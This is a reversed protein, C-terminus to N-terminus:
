PREDEEGRLPLEPPFRRSALEWGQADIVGALPLRGGDHMGRLVVPLRFPLPEVSKNVTKSIDWAYLSGEVALAPPGFLGDFLSQYVEVLPALEAPLYETNLVLYRLGVARLAELAAEDVSFTGEHEGQELSMLGVLFSNQAVWTDWAAPRVRDVWMAHGNLLKKGHVWQYSLTQQGCVLPPSIPLELVVEGPLEALKTYAEPSSWVSVPATLTGGRAGVEVPLLLVLALALAGPVVPRLWPDAQEALWRFARELGLAALPALTLTLVAIHRYPWWYRRLPGGVGYLFWFPGPVGGEGGGSLSPFPGLCLLYFLLSSAVCARQAWGLQAWVGRILGLWARPDKPAGARWVDYVPGILAGLAPLVLALPLIIGGWFGPGGLVPFLLPLSSQMALPHPFSAEATGPIESWSVLFVVLPPLTTALAVPVFPVLARLRPRFAWFLGGAVACWLGAYWYSFAAAGFLLGALIGLRLVAGRPRWPGDSPAAELLAHWAVLFFGIWYIPLQAFRGGALEEAVYPSFAVAGGAVLAAPGSGGLRRALLYGSLGNLTIALLIWRTVSGPWAFLAAFLTYPIADSGNGALWPGDGVPVYYRDNHLISAGDLLQEPIWRYLWHNSIMDPHTWLGVVGREGDLWAPYTQYLALLAYLVLALAPWLRRM